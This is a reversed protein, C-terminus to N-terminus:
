KILTFRYKKENNQDVVSNGKTFKFSYKKTEITEKPNITKNMGVVFQFKYSDSKVLNGASNVTVGNQSPLPLVEIVEPKTDDINLTTIDDGCSIMIFVSLFIMMLYKM